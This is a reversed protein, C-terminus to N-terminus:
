ELSISSSNQNKVCALTMGFTLYCEADCFYMKTYYTFILFVIFIVVVVGVGM